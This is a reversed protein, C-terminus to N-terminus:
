ESLIERYLDPNHVGKSGDRMLTELVGEKKFYESLAEKLEKGRKKKLSQGLKKIEKSYSDLLSIAEEQWERMMEDYGEEHCDVCKSPSPKRPTEDELHCDSCSVEAEFMPNPSEAGFLEGRYILNQIRHCSGCDRDRRHHCGECDRKFTLGHKKVSHCSKCSYVGLHPMHPFEKDKLKVRYYPADPHCSVCEESVKLNGSKKIKGFLSEVERLNEEARKLLADAFHINHAGRSGDKLILRLNEGADSLLTKIRGSGLGSTLDRLLDLREKLLKVRSSVSRQWLNMLRGYGEGHCFNCSEGISKQSGHCGFCAVNSLFMPDPKVSVGKGGLGMYMEEQISHGNKHCTRCEPSLAQAMEIKSHELKRHCETCKIMQGEIHIRHIEGVNEFSIEREVHCKICSPRPVDGRGRTVHVHCTKCEVGADLYEKHNFVIGDLQIEDRPPGHCTFCSKVPKGSPRGTFHCILCPDKSVALHNGQVLEYHCGACPMYIGRLTDGYHVEHNFPIREGFTMPTKLDELSHCQLCAEDKVKSRVQPNYAGVAYRVIETLLRAKGSVYNGLGPAWHCNKCDVTNHTSSHWNEVFPKMFHCSSSFYPRDSLRNLLWFLYLVVVLVGLVLLVRKM